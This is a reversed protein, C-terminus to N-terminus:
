VNDGLVGGIARNDGHDRPVSESAFSLSEVQFPGGGQHMKWAVRVEHHLADMMTSAGMKLSLVTLSALTDM